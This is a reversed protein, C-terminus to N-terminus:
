CSSCCSFPPPASHTTDPMVFRAAQIFLWAVDHQSNDAADAVAAAPSVMFLWVIVPDAMAAAPTDDLPAALVAFLRRQSCYYLLLM